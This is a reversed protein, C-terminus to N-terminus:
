TCKLDMGAPIMSVIRRFVDMLFLIGYLMLMSLGKEVGALTVVKTLIVSMLMGLLKRM